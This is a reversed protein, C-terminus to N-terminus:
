ASTPLRFTHFCSLIFVFLVLFPNPFFDTKATWDMSLNKQSSPWIIAVCMGSSASCNTLSNSPVAKSVDHLTCNFVLKTLRSHSPSGERIQHCWFGYVWRRLLRTGESQMHMPEQCTAAAAAAATAAVAGMVQKLILVM